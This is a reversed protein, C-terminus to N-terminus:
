NGKSTIEYFIKVIESDPIDFPDNTPIYGLEHLLNVVEKRLLFYEKGFKKDHSRADDVENFKQLKNLASMTLLFEMRKESQDLEELVYEIARLRTFSTKEIANYIDSLTNQIDQVGTFSSLYIRLNNVVSEESGYRECLAGYRECTTLDNKM